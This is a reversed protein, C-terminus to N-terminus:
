WISYRTGDSRLWIVTRKSVIGFQEGVISFMASHGPQTQDDYAERAINLLQLAAARFQATRRKM